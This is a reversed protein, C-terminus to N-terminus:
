ATEDVRDLGALVAPPVADRAVAPALEAAERHPTELSSGILRTATVPKPAIVGSPRSAGEVQFAATAPSLPMSKM